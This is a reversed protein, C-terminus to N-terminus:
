FTVTSWHHGGDFTMMRSGLPTSGQDNLWIAVGQAETEFGVYEPSTDPPASYV